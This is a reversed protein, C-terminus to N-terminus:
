HPVPESDPDRGTSANRCAPTRKLAKLADVVKLIM